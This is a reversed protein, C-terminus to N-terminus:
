NLGNMRPHYIIDAPPPPDPLKVKKRGAPLVVRFYGGLINGSPQMDLVYDSGTFRATGLANFNYRYFVGCENYPKPLGRRHRKHWPWRVGWEARAFYYFPRSGSIEVQYTEFEEVLTKTYGLQAGFMLQGIYQNYTM